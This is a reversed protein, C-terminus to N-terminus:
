KNNKSPKTTKNEASKASKAPEAAAQAQETALLEEMLLRGVEIGDEVLALDIVAVGREVALKEARQQTKDRMYGVPVRLIREAAEANWEYASFLPNKKGDRGILKLEGTEGDGDAPVYAVGNDDSPLELPVGTEIQM